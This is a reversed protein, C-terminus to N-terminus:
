ADGQARTAAAIKAAVAEHLFPVFGLPDRVKRPLGPASALCVVPRGDVLLHLTRPAFLTRGSVSGKQHGHGALRVDRWPAYGTDDQVGDRTLRVAQYRQVAMGWLMILAALLVFLGVKLWPASTRLPLAAALALPFLVYVVEFRLPALELGQEDIVAVLDEPAHINNVQGMGAEKVFVASGRRAM